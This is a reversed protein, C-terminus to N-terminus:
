NIVSGGSGSSQNILYKRGPANAKKQALVSIM